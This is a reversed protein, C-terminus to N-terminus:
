KTSKRKVCVYSVWQSVATGTGRYVVRWYPVAPIYPINFTILQETSVNTIAYSLPIMGTDASNIVTYPAWKTSDFSQELSVTGTLTGSIKTCSALFSVQGEDVIPTNYGKTRATNLRVVHLPLATADTATDLKSTGYTKAPNLMQGTYINPSVNVNQANAFLGLTLLLAIFLFNKM